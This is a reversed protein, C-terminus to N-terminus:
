FYMIVQSVVYKSIFFNTGPICKLLAPEVKKLHPSRSQNRTWLCTKTEERTDKGSLHTRDQNWPPLQQQTTPIHWPDQRLGRALRLYSPGPTLLKLKKGKRLIYNMSRWCTIIGPPKLDTRLKTHCTWAVILSTCVQYKDSADTATSTYFFNSLPIKQVILAFLVGSLTGKYVTHLKM